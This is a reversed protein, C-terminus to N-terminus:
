KKIIPYIRGKNVKFSVTIEDGEIKEINVYVGNTSNVFVEDGVKPLYQKRIRESKVIKYIIYSTMSVLTTLLIFFMLSISEQPTLEFM